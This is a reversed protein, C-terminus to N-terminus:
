NYSNAKVECICENYLKKVVTCVYTISNDSVTPKELSFLNLPHTIKELRRFLFM